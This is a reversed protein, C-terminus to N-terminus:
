EEDKERPHCKEHTKKLDNITLRTYHKLTDLSEHGLLEKVHYMNAGGRILETTCSRRFTHPTVNDHGIRAAHVHVRNLLTKYALRTGRTNLFLATRGRDRILYPRVARIYTDLRRLATRGIPVVRQKNGKGTVIMTRNALDLDAVDLGILEAARIGTSYLLELMARDRYGALDNTPVRALMKRVQAHTLISGPLTFPEKVYCITDPCDKRVHGHGALWTLFGKVSEIHTNITRPRIPIGEPTTRDAIQKQWQILHDRAIREPTNIRHTQSFWGIFILACYTNNELTRPSLNLSRRWDIYDNFHEKLTKM